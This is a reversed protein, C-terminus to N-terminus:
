MKWCPSQTTSVQLSSSRRFGPRPHAEHVSSPGTPDHLAMCDCQGSDAEQAHAQSHWSPARLSWPKNPQFRRHPCAPHELAGVLRPLVRPERRRLRHDAKSPPSSPFYLPLLCCSNINRFLAGRDCRIKRDESFLGCYGLDFGQTYASQYQSFPAQPWRSYHRSSSFTGGLGDLHASSAWLPRLSPARAGTSLYRRAALLPRLVPM